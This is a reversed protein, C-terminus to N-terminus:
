AALGRLWPRRLPGFVAEFALAYGPLRVSHVQTGAVTAGPSAPKLASSHEACSATVVAVGAVLTIWGAYRKM